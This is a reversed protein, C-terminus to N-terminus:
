ERKRKAHFSSRVGSSRRRVSWMFLRRLIVKVSIKSSAKEIRKSIYIEISWGSQSESSLVHLDCSWVHINIQFTEDNKNIKTVVKVTFESIYLLTPIIFCAKNVNVYFRLLSSKHIIMRERYIHIKSTLVTVTCQKYDNKIVRYKIICIFCVCVCM